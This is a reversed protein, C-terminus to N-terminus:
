EGNNKDKEKRGNTNRKKNVKRDDHRRRVNIYDCDDDSEKGRIERRLVLSSICGTLGEYSDGGGDVGDGYSGGGGGVIVMMVM